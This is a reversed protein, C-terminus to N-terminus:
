GAAAHSSVGVAVGDRLLEAALRAREATDDDAAREAPGGYGFLV